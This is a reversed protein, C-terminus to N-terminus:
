KKGIWEEVSTNYELELGDQIGLLKTNISTKALSIDFSTDVPFPINLSSDAMRNAQINQPDIGKTVALKRGFDLRSIRDPGSLHILKKLPNEVIELLADSLNRVSIPSRYQDEFLVVKGDKKLTSLIYDSFSTSWGLGHGYVLNSRVITATPLKAQIAEEAALKTQGYHTQPNPFSSESYPPNTGDFVMDTSLFIFPIKRTACATALRESGKVNVQHATEPDRHCAETRAIAAAHVVRDPNITNLLLSPNDKTLDFRIAEIWPPPNKHSYFTGYVRWHHRARYALHSGVFGTAGTILLRRM